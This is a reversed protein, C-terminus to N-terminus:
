VSTELYICTLNDKRREHQFPELYGEAAVSQGASHSGAQRCLTYIKKCNKLLGLINFFHKILKQM